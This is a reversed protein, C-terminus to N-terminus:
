KDGLNQVFQSWGFAFALTGKIIPDQMLSHALDSNGLNTLTQLETIAIQEKFEAIPLKLNYLCKSKLLKNFKDKAILNRLGQAQSLEGSQSGLMRVATQQVSGLQQYTEADIKGFNSMITLLSAVGFEGKLMAVVYQDQSPDIAKQKLTELYKITSQADYGSRLYYNFTTSIVDNVIQPDSQRLM